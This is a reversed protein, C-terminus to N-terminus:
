VTFVKVRVELRVAALDGGAHVGLELEGGVGAEETVLAFGVAEVAVAVVGVEAEEFSAVTRDWAVAEGAAPVEIVVHASDVVVSGGLVGAGGLGRGCGGGGAMCGLFLLVQAALLAHETGRSCGGHLTGPRGRLGAGNLSGVLGGRVVSLAQLVCLAVIVVAARPQELLNALDHRLIGSHMLLNIGAKLLKNGQSQVVPMNLGTLSRRLQSTTKSLHYCWV